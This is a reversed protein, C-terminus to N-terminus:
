ASVLHSSWLNRDICTQAQKWVFGHESLESVRFKSITVRRIPKVDSNNENTPFLFEERFRVRVRVRVRIGDKEAVSISGPM